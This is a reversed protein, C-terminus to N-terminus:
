FGREAADQKERQPAVPFAPEVELTMGNVASILVTEGVPVDHESHAQWIEGNVKVQGDPLLRTM